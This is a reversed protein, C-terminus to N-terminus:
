AAGFLYWKKLPVNYTTNGGCKRAREREKGGLESVGGSGGERM